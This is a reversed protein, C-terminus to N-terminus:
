ALEGSSVTLTMGICVSCPGVATTVMLPHWRTHVPASLDAGYGGFCDVESHDPPWRWSWAAPRCWPTSARRWRQSSADCGVM